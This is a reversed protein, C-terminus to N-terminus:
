VPELIWIVKRYTLIKVNKKGRTLFQRFGHDEKIVGFAGEVQIGGKIPTLMILTTYELEERIQSLLRVSDDEPILTRTEM